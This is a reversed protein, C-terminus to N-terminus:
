YTKREVRHVQQEMIYTSILIKIKEAFNESTTKCGVCMGIPKISTNQIAMNIDVKQGKYNDEFHSFLKQEAHNFNSQGNDGEIRPYSESDRRIVKYKVGSITVDASSKGSWAKGSVSLYYDTKGNSTVSGIAYSVPKKNNQYGEKLFGQTEQRIKDVDLASDPIKRLDHVKYNQKLLKNLDELVGKYIKTATKFDGKEAIKTIVKSTKDVVKGVPLVDILTTIYDEATKAEALNTIISLPTLDIIDKCVTGPTRCPEFFKELVPDKYDGKLFKSYTHYDHNYVITIEGADAGSNVGKASNSIAAGALGGIIKGGAQTARPDNFTDQLTTAALSAALAGAAAAKADGGSVEAIAASLAAHSITRGAEELQNAYEGIQYAGEAHAQSAASSLLATTFSDKFSGGNIATDLGSRIISQGVVRQATRVWDGHSLLPLSQTNTVAGAGEAVKDWGMAADFGSLAGGTVMSTIISKVTDSNGMDNFTKSLNGENEVLSVAAKSALASMGATIAGQAVASGGAVASAAPAAYGATVATVVVAIVAGAMPHLNKKSKNWSDYVDKVKTWQVDNRKNIDKIWSTEPNNGLLNIANQLIQGNTVKIDANIGTAADVIFDGNWKLQPLIWQESSHGKDKTKIFFGGSTSFKREYETNNAAKFNVAGHTSTLTINKGAQIKSAEYTSDNKSLINIDGSAIFESVKNNTGYKVENITELNKIEDSAASYLYGGRAAINMGNKIAEKKNHLDVEDKVKQYEQHVKALQNNEENLNNKSSRIKDNLENLKNIKLNTNQEFDTVYARKENLEKERIAKYEDYDPKFMIYFYPNTIEITDPNFGPGHTKVNNVYGSDTGNDKWGEVGIGTTVSGNELEFIKLKIYHELTERNFIMELASLINKEVGLTNKLNTTEAELSLKNKSLSDISDQLNKVKHEIPNLVNDWDSLKVPSIWNAGLGKAFLKSAEFLVSGESYINLSGGSTLETVDKTIKEQRKSYDYLYREAVKFKIDNNSFININNGSSIKSGETIIEHGASLIINKDANITTVSPIDERIFNFLWEKFNAKSNYVGGFLIGELGKRPLWPNEKLPFLFTSLNLSNGALLSVSNGASFKSGESNIDHAANVLLNEGAYIQTRLNPDDAKPISVLDMPLLNKEYSNDFIRSTTNINHGSNLSIDKNANLVVSTLSIDKGSNMLISNSSNLKTIPILNEVSIQYWSIKTPSQKIFNRHANATYISEIAIRDKAFMSINYSVPSFLINELYISGNASLTLDNDAELRNQRLTGNKYFINVKKNDTIWINGDFSNLFINKSKLDTGLMHSNGSVISINNGAKLDAFETKIQGESTIDLDKNAELSVNDINIVKSNISVNNAKVNLPLNDYFVNYDAVIKGFNELEKPTETKIDIKNKFDFLLSNKAQLNSGISHTPTWLNVDNNFNYYGSYANFDGYDSFIQLTGGFLGKSKFDQGTLILNDQASINAYNNSINDGYLYASKGSEIISTQYKKTITIETHELKQHYGYPGYKGQETYIPGFTGQQPKQKLITNYKLEVDDSGNIINESRVIIDGHNTKIKSNNIVEKNKDGETNKQIWINNNAQLLSNNNNTFKDGLIRIDANAVVNGKNNVNGALIIDKEAKINSGLEINIQKSGINLDRKAAINKLNSNGNVSVTIDETISELNGLNVGVGNETALIHIKDAYMGGLAKTDISLQPSQGEGHINGTVSGEKYNVRNTGQTIDITKAKIKGNLELARSMISVSDSEQDNLGKDGITIQGKTVKLFDLAGQEDFIPKGTTILAEATNIFGCGNCTIGNPNSIMVNAKDGAVELQGLLQSQNGGIVENIILNASNENFNPNKNIQGALQSDITGLSNNLVAGQTNVNFEKYINHSIGSNNPTAINIIPVNDVNYVQTQSNDPVLTNAFASNVPYVGMLYILSYSTIKIFPNSNTKINM